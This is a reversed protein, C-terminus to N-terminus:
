KWKVEVLKIKENENTCTITFTYKLGDERVIIVIRNTSSESISLGWGCVSEKPIEHNNYFPYELLWEHIVGRGRKDKIGVSIRFGASQVLIFDNEFFVNFHKGYISDYKGSNM